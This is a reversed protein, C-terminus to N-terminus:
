HLAVVRKATQGDAFSVVVAFFHGPGFVGPSGYLDLATGAPFRGLRNVFAQNIQRGSAFVGIVWQNSEATNWFQGGSPNGAAGGCALPAAAYVIALAALARRVM